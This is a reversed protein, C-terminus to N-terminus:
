FSQSMPGVLRDKLASTEADPEADLGDALAGVLDRYVRQIDSARGLRGYLTMARRYLHEAYRDVEIAKLAATLAGEYDNASAKLDSLKALVDLFREQFHSRLPEAWEYYLGQLLEGRYLAVAESLSQIASGEEAKAFLRDFQWVDV